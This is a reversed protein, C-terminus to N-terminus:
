KKEVFTKFENFLKDQLSEKTTQAPLKNLDVTPDFTKTSWFPPVDAGREKASVWDEEKVLLEDDTFTPRNDFVYKVGSM